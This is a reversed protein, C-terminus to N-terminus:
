ALRFLARVPCELAAAIRLAQDLFLNPHAALARGIVDPGLETIEGLEAPSMQRELLAARLRGRVRSTAVPTM